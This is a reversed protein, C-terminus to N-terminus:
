KFKDEGYKSFYYYVSKEAINKMIIAIEEVTWKNKVFISAAAISYIM